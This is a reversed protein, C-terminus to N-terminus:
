RARTYSRKLTRRRRTSASDCGADLMVELHRVRRDFRRLAARAEPEVVAREADDGAFGHIAGMSDWLTLVEIEIADDAIRRLVMAGRFGRVHRLTPLVRRRFHGIYPAAKDAVARWRRVIM